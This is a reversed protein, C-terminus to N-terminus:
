YCTPLINIGLGNSMKLAFGASLRKLVLLQLHQVNNQSLNQDMKALMKHAFRNIQLLRASQCFLFSKPDEQFLKYFEVFQQRVRVQLLRHSAQFLMSAIVIKYENTLKQEFFWKADAFFLWGKQDFYSTWFIRSFNFGLCQQYFRYRWTSFFVFNERARNIDLLLALDDFHPAHLNIKHSPFIFSACWRCRKDKRFHLYSYDTLFESCDECMPANCEPCCDIFHFLWEGPVEEFSPLKEDCCACPLVEFLSSLTRRRVVGKSMYRLLSSRGMFIWDPFENPPALGGRSQSMNTYRKGLFKYNKVWSNKKIYSIRHFSLFNDILIM